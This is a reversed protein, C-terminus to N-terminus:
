AAVPATATLEAILTDIEGIKANVISQNGTLKKLAQERTAADLRAAEKAETMQKQVEEMSTRLHDRYRIVIEPRATSIVTELMRATSARATALTERLWNLLNQKGARMAKYGLNVGIWVVGAIAGVGLLAGLMSTGMMGMTLVTPDILGQRKSAVEGTQLTDTHLSALVQKEIEEWVVPSDFLPDIIAHLENLFKQV